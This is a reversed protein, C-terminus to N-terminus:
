VKIGINETNLVIDLRKKTQHNTLNALIANNKKNLSQDDTRGYTAKSELM